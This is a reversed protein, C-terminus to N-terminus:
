EVPRLLAAGRAFAAFDFTAAPEAADAPAPKLALAGATGFMPRVVKAEPKTPAEPEPTLAVVDRMSMTTEVAALDRGAKNWRRVARGHTNADDASLYGSNVIVPATCVFSGDLRYVHVPQHLKDPDFRLVVKKGILGVLAEHWYRNGHLEVEGTPKRCTVGEAALLLLRRKEEPMGHATRIPAKAYSEAFVEARSRGQGNALNLAPENNFRDIERQVIPVLDALPIARKGYNAPKNLPNNGTYAGACEPAKSIYRALTGFAREIPKSQGHRVKTFRVETGILQFVGVPDDDRIKFRRRYRSQGTNTKDAAAMTNDASVINAIGHTTVCDCYALRFGLANECTDLRWSVIMGSYVDQFALLFARSVSGKLWEVFLDLKHGDYNLVELAHLSSKDRREAPYLREYAEQGKRKLVIVRHDIERAIKRQMTKLSPITWGHEAALDKLRLHCEAATPEEERLYLTKFAEWAEPTIEVTKRRGCHHNILHPLWDEKAIGAVLQYWKWITSRGEGHELGIETLADEKRKGQMVAEEVKLLIDLRRCAVAKQADTRADYFRWAEDRAIVQRRAKRDATPDPPAPQHRAQWQVQLHAPLLRYHYVFGRGAPRWLGRPNAKGARHHEARWGKERVQKNFAQVTIGMAKAMAETSLWRWDQDSRGTM